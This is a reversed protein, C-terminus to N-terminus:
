RLRRDGIALLRQPASLVLRLAVALAVPPRTAARLRDIGVVVVVILALRLQGVDIPGIPSRVALALKKQKHLEALRVVPVFRALSAM